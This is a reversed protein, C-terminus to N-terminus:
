DTNKSTKYIKAILHANYISTTASQQYIPVILMLTGPVITPTPIVLPM